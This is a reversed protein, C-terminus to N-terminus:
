WAGEYNWNNKDFVGDRVSYWYAPLFTNGNNEDVSFDYSNIVYLKDNKKNETTISNGTFPNVPNDILGSMAIAPTDANTMFENSVTVGSSNFDKVMFLPNFAQVDLPGEELPNEIDFLCHEFQGLNRGHDAVVIIRTNDYCGQERLYDFFKGLEILAGMNAHYHSMQDKDSVDMEVGNLVFRDKNAADYSTNDVVAAPIYEPEQLLTASHALNSTLYLFHNSSDNVVTTSDDWEEAFTYANMYDMDYGESTSVGTCLYTKYFLGSGVEASNYAGDNYMFPQAIIPSCKFLSYCFLNRELVGDVADSMDKYMDNYKAGTYYANVYPYSDYIGIDTIWRYGAYSPDVVTVDFNNEGFLVPMVYLSENHKSELSEDSRANLNYPTYDYGGAVAPLAFNTSMGFSLTNPYYTFGDFQRVLEPNENMAYPLVEGLARDMMIVIVNQGDTSVTWEAKCASQATKVNTKYSFNIISCNFGGMIALSVIAGSLVITVVRSLKCVLLATLAIVVLLVLLNVVKLGTTNKIESNFQLISSLTGYNQSFAMYNVLSGAVLITMGLSLANRVKISSLKYFVCGWFVFAGFALVASSVIYQLPNFFSYNNIFETPASSIITSPIYFGMLLAMLLAPIVFSMMGREKLNENNVSNSSAKKAPVFKMVMNKGLSFVNNLTWYFVLGAPSDYLLVLFVGAIGFLQIKTKASLGKSYIVGSIINILTMLVPLVNIAISGIKLMGDPRGLDSILGFSVGNLLNLHSLFNYAAIFFPVQLLLPVIQKLSDFPQYKNERYYAQLLMFREDGKFTKKIHKVVPALKKEKETAQNQIDDARKYLPLVLINVLLSLIIIAFGPNSVHRNAVAFVSEFLLILPSIIAKYIYSM